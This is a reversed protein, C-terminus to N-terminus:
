RGSAPAPRAALEFRDAYDCTGHTAMQRAARVVEGGLASLQAGVDGDLLRSDADFVRRSRAVPLVLPVAWARLARVMFEMANVAQLGQGGGATTILGVVKDTLYPPDHDALLQLWDIVNKFSGSVSGHYLPSSWVMARAPAVEAVFRRAAAPAAADPRYPPLDLERVDYLSTEAGAEAAAALALRLAALSTSGPRLSGGLGVVRLSAV